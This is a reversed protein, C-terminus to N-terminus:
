HGLKVPIHLLLKPPWLHLLKPHGEPNLLMELAACFHVVSFRPSKEFDQISQELFQFANETLSTFVEHDLRAREESQSPRRGRSKRDKKEM